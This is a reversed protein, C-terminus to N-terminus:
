EQSDCVVSTTAARFLVGRPAVRLHAVQLPKRGLSPPPDFRDRASVSSTAISGANKDRTRARRFEM